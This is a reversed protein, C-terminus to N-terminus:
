PEHRVRAIGWVTGGVAGLVFGAPGTAIFGLIPGINSEPMLLLPGIFGVLFGVTGLGLAGLWGRRAIESARTEPDALAYVWGLIAATSAPVVILLVFIDIQSSVVFQLINWLAVFSSLAAVVGALVRM